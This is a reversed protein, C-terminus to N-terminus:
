VPKRNREEGFALKAGVVAETKGEQAYLPPITAELWAPMLDHADDHAPDPRTMMTENM